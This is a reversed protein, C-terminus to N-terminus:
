MVRPFSCRYPLLITVHGCRLNRPGIALWGDGVAVRGDGDGRTNDKEREREREREREGGKERLYSM